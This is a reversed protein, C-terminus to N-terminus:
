LVTVDEPDGFTNTSTIGTAETNTNVHTGFTNTSTIGTAERNMVTVTGFTNTNVFGDIAYSISIDNVDTTINSPIDSLTQIEDETGTIGVILVTDTVTSAQITSGNFKLSLTASGVADPTGQIVFTYDGAPLDSFETNEGASALSVSEVTALLDDYITITASGLNSTYQMSTAIFDEITVPTSLTGRFYWDADYEGSYTATDADFNGSVTIITDPNTSAGTSSLGLGLGAQWRDVRNSIVVKEHTGAGADATIVWDDDTGLWNTSITMTYEGSEVDMTSKVGRIYHLYEESTNRERISIQDNIGILPNGPITASGVRQTFWIQLNILEATIQMEETNLYQQSDSILTLPKVIGRLAPVGSRIEETATNPVYRVYGTSSPDRYDPADNGVIIESRLAEGSIQSSYDMLTLEESIEPIFLTDGPDNTQDGNGDIYIRGGSFLTNSNDINGAQWWNPSSFIASGDYDIWFHYGVIEKMQKIVDIISKKDFLDPTLETDSPIGTSELSGFVAPDDSSGSDAPDYALWGAWLLVDKVVDVYDEYNGEFWRFGTNGYYGPQGWFEADFHGVSGDAALLWFGTGDPDPAMSWILAKFFGWYTIDTEPIDLDMGPHDEYINTPGDGKADGFAAVHGSGFVIWYGNGTTTSRIAHTFETPTLRFSDASGPDYVRQFLQGYHQSEGFAYVEGSGTTYWCGLAHPHSAVSTGRRCFAYNYWDQKVFGLPNNAPVLGTIPVTEMFIDVQTKSPAYGMVGGGVDYFGPTSAASGFGRVVGNGYVIYYGNGDYAPAIDFAQGNAQAGWIDSVPSRTTGSPILHWGYSPKGGFGDVVGNRWLVWGGTGDPHAAIGVVDSNQTSITFPTGVVEAADGFGYITGTSDAVWYGRIPHACMAFTWPDDPTPNGYNPAFNTNVNYANLERIGCRYPDGGFNGYYFNQFTLRIYRVNTNKYADPISINIEKEKGDPIGLPVTVKTVYTPNSDYDNPLSPISETGFWSGNWLSVYCTYGGAWPRLQIQDVNKLDGEIRYQFWENATNPAAFGDSLAYTGFKGDVADSPFHNYVNQNVGVNGSIRGGVSASEFVIPLRSQSARVAGGKPPPGWFSDFASKGDAVYHLPSLADPILPPIIIQDILLKGIDKMSLTLIGETSGNVTEVLWVGTQWIDGDAVAQAVTKGHGGYGEYTRILAYPVLAKEWEFGPISSGDKGTAGTSPTQGWITNSDGGGHGPWFYGPKGLQDVEEPLNDVGATGQGLNDHWQNYIEVTCTAIDQSVQRDWTISKINPVEVELGPTAFNQWYRYPGRISNAWAPNPGTSNLVWDAEITVRGHPKNDGTFDGADVLAFFDKDYRMM